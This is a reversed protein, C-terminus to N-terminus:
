FSFSYFLDVASDVGQAAELYLKKTLDYRLYLTSEPEFVSRGYRLLLRDNLRGSVVLETSDGSGRTELAFDEVGIASAIGGAINRGGKVTLALAATALLNAEQDSAENIDRGLVIYSLIADQSKDGPETFLTIEPSAVTGGINLGAVRDESDIERIADIDLRSQNVPGVFLIQGNAKLNQGYQKYIGDVVEIEGGLQPPNPSTVRVTMDGTLRANLGYASLTVEDGLEVNLAVVLKTGGPTTAAKEVVTEAEIDEIVVVDTSVSAAGQPLDEVDIVAMPINIDGNIRIIGPRAGIKVVHDIRSEQVPDSQVNLKEGDLTVDARWAGPQQWNASGDIDVTGDGSDLRGGIVARKGKVTTIIRGGTVALPLMEARLRPNDLVIEGDFRPDTLLGSVDGSVNLTGAVEDFDPLFAKAVGVDLGDLSLTGEIPKEEGSPDLQISIDAQGLNKSVLNLDASVSTPDLQTNLTLEDYTFNVVNDSADVVEAGGDIIRSNVTAAFGGPLTDGWNITADMALSGKLTTEAPLFPNLRNLAYDNLTIDATGSAEALVKNQLCLQSGETVWCHADVSFKKQTHDWALETPQNLTIRHAPAELEVKDLSGLWDFTDGLAGSATLDIATADPGDAFVTLVHENRKGALNVRTNRIIQEGSQVTGVAVSLKSDRVFLEDIDAEISVGQVLIDNYKIVSSSANLDVDPTALPGRLGLTADFGGALEPLLNQLQPLTIKADLKWVDSVTGNVNVRNSGNDLIVKDINWLNDLGKSVKADLKFPYERLTGSVTAAPVDLTWNGNEVRGSARLMADLKGTVEPLQLSPDINAINWTTRWQLLDIWSVQATAAATGGLTGVEIEPLIVRETNALGAISLTTEPVQEGSVRTSLSLQYDDLTGDIRVVTDRAQLQQHSILPWGLSESDIELSAPLDKELPQVKGTLSAVVPGTVAMDISLDKLSNALQLRVTAAQDGSGEPLTDPLLDAADVTLGLQLPYDGELTIDGELAATYSQYRASLERINLQSG